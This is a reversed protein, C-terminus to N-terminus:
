RVNKQKKHWKIYNQFKENELIKEITNYNEALEKETFFEHLSKHCHSKCIWIVNENLYDKEFDREYKRRNHVMKPILHHFNLYTDERGCLECKEHKDM